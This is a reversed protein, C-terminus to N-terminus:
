RIGWITGNSGVASSLTATSTAATWTWTIAGGTGEYWGGNVVIFSPKLAFQFATNSDDITGSALLKMESLYNIRGGGVFGGGKNRAEDGIKKLEEDLGKIASKDLRNEGELLELGDRIKEGLKPLDGEIADITPIIPSLEGMVLKSAEHALEFVSPTTGDKGDQGREGRDGKPGILGRPGTEGTDGKPGVVTDGKDGKPGREGPVGKVAQLIKDINLESKRVQELVRANEARLEEIMAFVKFTTDDTVWGSRVAENLKKLKKEDM